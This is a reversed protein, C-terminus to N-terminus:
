GLAHQDGMGDEADDAEQEEKGNSREESAVRPCERILPKDRVPDHLPQKTRPQEPLPISIRQRHDNAPIHM